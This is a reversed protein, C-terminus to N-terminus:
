RKQFFPLVLFVKQRFTKACMRREVTSRAINVGCWRLLLKRGGKEFPPRPNLPSCGRVDRAQAYRSAEIAKGGKKNDTM